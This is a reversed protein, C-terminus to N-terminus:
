GLKIGHDNLFSKALKRTSPSQSNSLGVVFSVIADKDECAEFCIDFAKVVYGSIMDIRDPNKNIKFIDLLREIVQQRLDARAAAIKGLNLASHGCVGVAPDNMLEAYANLINAFGGDQKGITLNATVYLAAMKTSANETNLLSVFTKWHGSISEPRRESLAILTRTCHEREVTKKRNPGIGEILRLIGPENGIYPAIDVDSFNWFDAM